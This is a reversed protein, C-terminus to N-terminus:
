RDVLKVVKELAEFGAYVDDDHQVGLVGVLHGVFDGRGGANQCAVLRYLLFPFGIQAGEGVSDFSGHAGLGVLVLVAQEGKHFHVISGVLVRPACLLVLGHEYLDVEVGFLFDIEAIILVAGGVAGDVHFVALDCGTHVADIGIGVDVNLLRTVAQVGGDVDLLAGIALVYLFAFGLEGDVVRRFSVGDGGRAEFQAVRLDEDSRFVLFAFAADM